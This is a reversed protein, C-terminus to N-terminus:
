AQPGTARWLWLVGSEMTIRIPGGLAVNSQGLQGGIGMDASDLRWKLGSAMVGCAACFPLLSITEGAEASASFPCTDTVRTLQEAEGHLVVTWASPIAAAILLNTQQHDARGGLGGIVDLRAEKLGPLGSLIKEFDTSFQDPVHRQEVTDPFGEPGVSDFDGVILDPEWGWRRAHRYGGGDAAVILGSDPREMQEPAEGGLLVVIREM